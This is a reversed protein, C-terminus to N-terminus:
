KITIACQVNLGNQVFKHAISNSVSLVFSCFCMIIRTWCSARFHSRLYSRKFIRSIILIVPWAVLISDIPPVDFHLSKKSKFLFIIKLITRVLVKDAALAINWVLFQSTRARIIFKNELFQNTQASKTTRIVLFGIMDASNKSM